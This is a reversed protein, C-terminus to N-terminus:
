PQVMGAALLENTERVENSLTRHPLISLVVVSSAPARERLAKVVSAVGAAVGCAGQERLQNTGILIVTSRFKLPATTLGLRYLM